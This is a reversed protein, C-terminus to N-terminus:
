AGWRGAVAHRGRESAAAQARLDTPTGREAIRAAIWAEVEDELFCRRTGAVPVSQPFRGEKILRYVYQRTLGTLDTVRDIPLLRPM